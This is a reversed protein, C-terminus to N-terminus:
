YNRDNTYYCIMTDLLLQAGQEFESPLNFYPQLESM